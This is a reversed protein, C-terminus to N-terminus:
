RRIFLTPDVIGTSFKQSLLFSSLFDYWARLAQKLGYLAKKLKYVHNPNLPDVFGDPQSVYVEERLIDNLFATKVDMQYVIMTMHPAFAIFIRIAELRAVPAFSEEFDVGEEQSSSEESSPEPILLGFNPNNDMHTVEIDHDAEEASPPIVHSPSERPTQSTSPSPADQDFTTSSPTSTSVAIHRNYIWYVKKAPAYGIFIGVDAKAKLKGLDESDNTPYCLVGFVHLYSLNSKTDHLLEYPTKGHRLRILSYNQTYCATAVAEAWLFLPAKAYILITRAAEVLTRNRRKVVGNQQPTHAVSTEYSIGVDDYYSRLTQKVFKTGNDIRINRVIANLRVQIMKIFKIIFEPAEDKSILFTVWTFRSYDYVIVLIYKKGNISEVRMPGCLDMHLLYLKEQNTDKSKPKHSQKKSKGLSCAYCLHDKEFKLKPLGRVLGCFLNSLRCDILSSSPVNSVTSEGAQTPELNNSIRSDIIKSKSSSGVSKIEKPRRIYVKIGLTPTLVSNTTTEKLPVTPKWVQKKNKHKVPKSKSLVNVDHVYDLVYKDHNADFLCENYIDCLSKSNANLMSHLVDANCETKSVRNKKNTRSKVSRSQDEVKNTKNSSSPQLIRNNRTNGTPKSGSASTSCIVGTSHLLPQNSDETKHSNVQSKTNSSSMVPDAFRVKKDKNM